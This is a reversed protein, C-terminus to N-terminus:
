SIAGFKSSSRMMIVSVDNVNVVPFFMLFNLYQVIENFVTCVSPSHPTNPIVAGSMKIEFFNELLYISVNFLAKYAGIARAAIFCNSKPAHYVHSNGAFGILGM